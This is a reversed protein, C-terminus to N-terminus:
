PRSVGLIVRMRKIAFMYLQKYKCPPTYVTYASTRVHAHVHPRACALDDPLVQTHLVMCTCANIDHGTQTVKCSSSVSVLAARPCPVSLSSKWKRSRHCCATTLLSRVPWLQSLHEPFIFRAGDGIQQQPRSVWVASRLYAAFIGAEASLM